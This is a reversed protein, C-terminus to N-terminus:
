TRGSSATGIAARWARGDIASADLIKGINSAKALGYIQMKLDTAEVAVIRSASPAGEDYRQRSRERWPYLAGIPEGPRLDSQPERQTPFSAYLECHM